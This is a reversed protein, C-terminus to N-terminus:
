ADPEPEDDDRERGALIRSMGARFALAKREYEGIDLLSPRAPTPVPQTADPLDPPAEPDPETVASWPVAGDDDDDDDDYGRRQRLEELVPELLEFLEFQEGHWDSHAESSKLDPCPLGCESCIYWRDHPKVTISRWDLQDHKLNYRGHELKRLQRKHWFYLAAYIALALAAPGAIALLPAADHGLQQGITIAAAILIIGVIAAV